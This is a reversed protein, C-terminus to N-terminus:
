LHAICDGGGGGEGEDEGNGDGDGVFGPFFLIYVAGGRWELAIEVEELETTKWTANQTEGIQCRAYLDPGHKEERTAV